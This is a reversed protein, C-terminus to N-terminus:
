FFIERRDAFFTPLWRRGRTVKSWCWRRLGRCLPLTNIFAAEQEGYMRQFELRALQGAHEIDGSSRELEDGDGASVTVFGAFRM